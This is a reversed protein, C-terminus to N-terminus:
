SWSLSQVDRCALSSDESQREQAWADLAYITTQFSLRLRRCRHQRLSRLGRELSHTVAELREVYALLTPRSLAQLTALLAQLSTDVNMPYVLDAGVVVDTHMGWPAALPGWLLKELKVRSSVLPNAELNKSAQDLQQDTITVQM